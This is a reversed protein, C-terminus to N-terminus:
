LRLMAKVSRRIPGLRNPANTAEVLAQQLRVVFREEAAEAHEVQRATEAAREDQLLALENEFRDLRATRQRRMRPHALFTLALLSVQGVTALVAALVVTHLSLGPLYQMFYLLCTFAAPLTQLLLWAVSISLMVRRSWRRDTEILARETSVRVRIREWRRSDTLQQRLEFLQQPLARDARRWVSVFGGLTLGLATCAGIRQWLSPSGTVYLPVFAGIVAGLVASLFPLAVRDTFTGVGRDLVLRDIRPLLALVIQDLVASAILSVVWVGLIQALLVLAPTMQQLIEIVKM